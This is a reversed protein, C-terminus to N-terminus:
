TIKYYIITTETARRKSRCKAGKKRKALAFIALGKMNFLSIIIIELPFLPLTACHTTQRFLDSTALRDIPHDIFCKTSLM